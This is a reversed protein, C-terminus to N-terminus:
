SPKFTPSLAIQHRVGSVQLSTSGRVRALGVLCRGLGSVWVGVFVLIAKEHIPNYLTNFGQLGIATNRIRIWLILMM